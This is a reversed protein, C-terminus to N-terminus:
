ISYPGPLLRWGWIYELVTWLLLLSVLSFAMKTTPRHSRSIIFIASIGGSLAIAASLYTSWHTRSLHEFQFIMWMHLAWVMLFHGFAFAFNSPIRRRSISILLLAASILLVSLYNSGAIEVLGTHELYEGIFGWLFLGSLIGFMNSAFLGIRKLDSLLFLLVSLVALCIGAISYATHSIRATFVLLMYTGGFALLTIIFTALGTKKM